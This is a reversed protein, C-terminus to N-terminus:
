CKTSKLRFSLLEVTVNFLINSSSTIRKSASVLRSQSISTVLFTRTLCTFLCVYVHNILVTSFILGYFPRFSISSSM